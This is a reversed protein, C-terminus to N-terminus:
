KIIKVIGKDADVEILDGDRLIKTAIKTSMICPVKLERSTIAVHSLIGGEDTVIASFNKLSLNDQPRTMPTVLIEGAGEGRLGHFTKSVRGIVKGPFVSIGKIINEDNGGIILKRYIEVFIDKRATIHDKNKTFIYVYHRRRNALDLAQKKSLIKDKIYDKSERLTMYRLLDGDFGKNKGIGLACKKLLPEIKSYILDAIENKNKIALATAKGIKKARGKDNEVYRMISNYFGIIFLIDPYTKTIEKLIFFCDNEKRSEQLRKKDQLFRKQLAGIILKIDRKGFIRIFDTGIKEENILSYFKDKMGLGGIAGYSYGLEKQMINCYGFAICSVAFLPLKRSSAHILGASEIIKQYKNM